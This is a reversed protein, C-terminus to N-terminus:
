RRQADVNSTTKSFPPQIKDDILDRGTMGSNQGRPVYIGRAFSTSYYPDTQPRVFHNKPPGFSPAFNSPIQKYIQPINRSFDSRDPFNLPPAREPYIGRVGDIVPIDEVKIDRTKTIISFKITTILNGESDRVTSTSFDCLGNQCSKAPRKAPSTNDLHICKSPTDDSTSDGDSSRPKDFNHPQRIDSMQPLLNFQQSASPPEPGSSLDVFEILDPKSAYSTLSLSRKEPEFAIKSSVDLCEIAGMSSICLTLVLQIIGM